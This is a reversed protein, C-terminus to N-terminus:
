DMYVEYAFERSVVEATDPVTADVFIEWPGPMTFTIPFARYRGDGIEEVVPEETSGHGHIGMWPFVTMTAGEVGADLEDDLLDIYMTCRDVNPPDPDITAELRYREDQVPASDDDDDSPTPCAALALGLTLALLRGSRKV